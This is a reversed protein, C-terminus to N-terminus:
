LGCECWGCWGCLGCLWLGCECLGCECWGCWGCLGCECLGHPHPPHLPQLPHVCDHPPPFLFRDRVFLQSPWVCVCCFPGAHLVCQQAPVPPDGHAAHGAPLAPVPDHPLHAAPMNWSWVPFVEHLLQGFLWHCFWLLLAEHLDPAPHLTAAFLCLQVAHGVPLAPLPDHPLHPAPLNWSWVPIAEHLPQGFPMNWFWSPLAVHLLQGTVCYWFWCAWDAQLLPAPHATAAFRCLQAAHGTPMAPVADHLGQPASVNWSWVPCAVHM